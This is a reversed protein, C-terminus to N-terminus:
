GNVPERGNPHLVQGTMYSADDSALFVYCNVVEEPQGARKMPVNGGFREVHEETRRKRGFPRNEEADGHEDLYAIAVDAGGKAFAIAVARGIESDGGTILAVKGQLKGSGRYHPDEAAPRPQMESEIGPQRDQHQPPQLREEDSDKQSM